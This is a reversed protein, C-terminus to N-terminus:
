GDTDMMAAVAPSICDISCAYTPPIPGGGRVNHWAGRGLHYGLTPGGPFIEEENDCEPNDCVMMTVKRKGM